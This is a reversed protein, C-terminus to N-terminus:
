AIMIWALYPNYTEMGPYQVGRTRDLYLKLAEGHPNLVAIWTGARRYNVDVAM